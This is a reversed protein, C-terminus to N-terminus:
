YSCSYPFPGTDQGPVFDAVENLMNNANTEVTFGDVRRIRILSFRRHTCRIEFAVKVQQRGSAKLHKVLDPLRLVVHFKPAEVFTLRVAGQPLAMLGPAQPETSWTMERTIHETHGCGASSLASAILLTVIGQLALTRAGKM